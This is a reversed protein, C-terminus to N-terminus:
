IKTVSDIGIEPIFLEFPSPPNLHKVWIGKKDIKIIKAEQPTTEIDENPLRSIVSVVQGVKFQKATFQKKVKAETFLEKFM